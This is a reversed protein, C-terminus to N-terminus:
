MPLLHLRMGSSSSSVAQELDWFLQYIEADESDPNVRCVGEVEAWVLRGDPMRRQIRLQVKM